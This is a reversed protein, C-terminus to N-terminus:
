TGDEGSARQAEGGNNAIAPIIYGGILQDAWRGWIGGQRYNGGTFVAALQFQPVVILVQGGNGTAAYADYVQEGSRLGNLHWAYADSGESYYNPFEEATIGTTEPSIRMRPTTSEKVWAADVIRKGNWVGGDLYAQGVKLLDRPLLFAGGGLYGEGTPMLNWHWEGFQLPRAIKQEFLEPLWTGTATTLAGGMLNINASCYAYRAGPEHAMSLDLTYKWWDPKASQTQMTNENGPSADDYDNCALGAAHTMLHALTIQAKRPDANAFPGKAAMLEYIRTDPGIPKGDRMAAGLLVSSFTKGASRLDHPQDRDFGFFYEELVLKARYAVLMSHILSPRRAAPDGDIITQVMRGIGAEDLGVEGARAITWGDGLAPPQRYVYPASGPPRPFFSAAQEPTRRLLEIAGGAYEWAICLRDPAPMRTAELQYEPAAPDAGATFRVINAKQTVRYQMAPGHSHQEPNRFAGVLTGEENRFIRLYLTFSNALPRVTGRWTDPGASSLVLPTTFPQSSGGPYRPDITVGPRIWFGHIGDATLAGRFHGGGDPFEFRIREPPSQFRVETEAIRASWGAGERAVTLEGELPSGFSTAYSWIGILSDDAPPASPEEAQACAAGCLLLEAVFYRWFSRGGIM